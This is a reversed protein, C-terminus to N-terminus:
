RRQRLEGVVTLPGVITLTALLFATVSLADPWREQGRDLLAFVIHLIAPVSWLADGLRVAFREGERQQRHWPESTILLEGGDPPRLTFDQPNGRYGAVAGRAPVLLGSVVVRDGARVVHERQRDPSARHEASVVRLGYREEPTVWVRAGTGALVLTFPRAEAPCGGWARHPAVEGASEYIVRIAVGEPDDTEVTGVYSRLGWSLPEPPAEFPQQQERQWRRLRVEAYLRAVVCVAIAVAGIRISTASALTGKM